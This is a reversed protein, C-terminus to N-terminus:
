STHSRTTQTVAGHHSVYLICPPYPLRAMTKIPLGYAFAGSPSMLERKTSALNHSRGEVRLPYGSLINAIRKKRKLSSKPYHWFILWLWKWRRGKSNIMWLLWKMSHYIDKCISVVNNFLNISLSIELYIFIVAEQSISGHLRTSTSRRKLPWEDGQHHPCYVSRFRRDIDTLSYDWLAAMKLSFSWTPRHIRSSHLRGCLVTLQTATPSYHHSIRTPVISVRPHPLRLLLFTM